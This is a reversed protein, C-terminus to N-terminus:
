QGVIRSLEDGWGTVVTIEVSQDLDPGGEKAVLFRQGDPSPQYRVLWFSGEFVDPVLLRPVGTAFRPERRVDAVYLSGNLVHFLESGDRSWAAQHGGDQLVQSEGSGDVARVDELLLRDAVLSAAAREVVCAYGELTGYREEVSLRPDGSDLRGAGPSLLAEAQWQLSSAQAM